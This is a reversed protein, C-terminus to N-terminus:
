GAGPCASAWAKLETLKGAVYAAGVLAGISSGCVVDIKVGAEELAELVGIHAWGRAAGSGLALGIKATDCRRDEGQRPGRWQAQM